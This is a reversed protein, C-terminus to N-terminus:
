KCADLNLDDSGQGKETSNDTHMWQLVTKWTKSLIKKVVLGM